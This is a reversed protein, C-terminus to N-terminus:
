NRVLAEKITHSISDIAGSLIVLLSYFMYRDDKEEPYKDYISNITFLNIICGFVITM